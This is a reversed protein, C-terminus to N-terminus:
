LTPERIPIIPIAASQDDSNSGFRGFSIGAGYNDVGATANENNIHLGTHGTDYILSANGTGFLVAQVNAPSNTTGGIKLQGNSSIRMAETVGSGGQNTNFILNAPMVNSSPTGDVESLISAGITNLDTGDAGVFLISGLDDGDIVATNGGVSGARTKGLTLNPGATGNQNRTISASSTVGNTGEIQLQREGGSTERSSSTNILLRGSSDIRMRETADVRFQINSSSGLNDEDAAIVLNDSSNIGIYNGRPSASDEIIIKSNSAGSLHLISDPSTTGIGVNESADITIATSTANDDIGTSSFNDLPYSMQSTGVTGDSPTGVSLVDGLVLIYDIVDSSTLASSFTINSGSVTVSDKTLAYTATASTTISDLLVFNGAVPEKGIYPM